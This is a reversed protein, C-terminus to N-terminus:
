TTAPHGGPYGWVWKGDAMMATRWLSHLDEKHNRDLIQHPPQHAQNPTHAWKMAKESVRWQASKSWLVVKPALTHLMKDSDCPSLPLLLPEGFVPLISGSSALHPAPEGEIYTRWSLQGIAEQNRDWYIWWRRCFVQTLKRIAIFQHRWVTPSSFIRSLGKSLCSIWGTSGLPFWGQYENSPSISFNFSWYNPWRIHLVSGNSLGPCQSLTFALPSSPSLPHSSQIADSICYVHVQTFGPLHHLVPFVPM